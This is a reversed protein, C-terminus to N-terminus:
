ARRRSPAREVRGTAARARQAHSGRIFLNLQGAMRGAMGTVDVGITVRVNAALVNGDPTIATEETLAPEPM